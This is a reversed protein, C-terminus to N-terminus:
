ARRKEEPLDLQQQNRSAREVAVQRKPWPWESEASRARLQEESLGTAKCAIAVVRRCFEALPM